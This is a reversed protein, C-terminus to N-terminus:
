NKKYISVSTLSIYYLNFRPVNRDDQHRKIM